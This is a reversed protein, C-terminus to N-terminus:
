GAAAWAALRPSSWGLVAQLDSTMGPPDPTSRHARRHARGGRQQGGRSRPARRPARRPLRAACGAPDPQRARRTRDLDLVGLAWGVPDGLLTVTAPAAAGSLHSALRHDIEGRWLLGRRIANMVSPRATSSLAGAAYVACLVHQAATGRETDLDFELLEGVGILRHRSRQLGIRDKQFRHRLRPQPIRRGVELEGILHGLESLMEDDLHRGFHAVVGGLLVGGFGPPPSVPLISDGLAVRRTPAIPRSLYAEVQALLM